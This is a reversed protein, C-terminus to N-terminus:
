PSAPGYTRHWLQRSTSLGKRVRIIYFNDFDNAAISPVTQGSLGQVIVPVNDSHGVVLIDKGKLGKLVNILKDTTDPNYLRLQKGLDTALPQATQQTRRFLSAFISDIGKERLSDRLVRARQFGDASLPSDNSNDQREAHRVVYYFTTTCSLFTWLGISIFVGKMM